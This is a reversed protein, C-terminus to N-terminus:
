LCANKFCVFFICYHLTRYYAICTDFNLRHMYFWLHILLVLHLVQRNKQLNKWFIFLPISDTSVRNQMFKVIKLMIGLYNENSKGRGIFIFCFNSPFWTNENWMLPFNTAFNRIIQWNKWLFSNRPIGGGKENKSIRKM